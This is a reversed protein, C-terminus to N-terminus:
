LKEGGKKDPQQHKKDHLYLNKENEDEWKM